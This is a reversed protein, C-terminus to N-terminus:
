HFNCLIVWIVFYFCLDKITKWLCEIAWRPLKVIKVHLAPWSRMMYIWEYFKLPSILTKKKKLENFVIKYNFYTKPRENQRIFSACKREDMIGFILVFSKQFIWAFSLSYLLFPCLDLWAFKCVFFLFFSFLFPLLLM